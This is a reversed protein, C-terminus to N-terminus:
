GLLRRTRRNVGMSDSNNKWVAASSTVGRHQLGARRRIREAGSSVNRGSFGAAVSASYASEYSWHSGSALRKETLVPVSSRRKNSTVDMDGAASLLLKQSPNYSTHWFFIGIQLNVGKPGWRHLDGAQAALNRSLGARIHM